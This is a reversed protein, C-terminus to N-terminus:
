PSGLSKEKSQGAKLLTHGFAKLNGSDLFFNVPLSLVLTFLMANILYITNFFPYQLRLCRPYLGRFVLSPIICFLPVTM